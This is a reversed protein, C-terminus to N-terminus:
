LLLSISIAGITSLLTGLLYYEAFDQQKSIRDYRAISKATLVLGVASYQNISIFIMIIIRELTGIFRGLNKDNKGEDEEQPRYPSLIISILVNLPRHVLLLKLTWSLLKAEPVNFVEMISVLETRFLTMRNLDRMTYTLMIIILIHIIQEAIFITQAMENKVNICMHKSVVYKSLNVIGHFLGLLAMYKVNLGPLFLISLVISIGAYLLSCFFVWAADMQRKEETKVPQFYFDCLVHILLFCNFIEKM